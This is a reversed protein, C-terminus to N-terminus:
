PGFTAASAVAIAFPSHGDRHGSDSEDHVAATSPAATFAAADVQPVRPPMMLRQPLVRALRPRREHTHVAGHVKDASAENAHEGTRAAEGAAHPADEQAKHAQGVEHMGHDHARRSGPSMTRFAVVM